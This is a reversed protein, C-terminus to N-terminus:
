REDVNVPSKTRVPTLDLKLLLAQLIRAEDSVNPHISKKPAAIRCRHGDATYLFPKNEFWALPIEPMSADCLEQLSDPLRQHLLHFRRLRLAIRTLVMRRHFRCVAEDAFALIGKEPPSVAIRSPSLAFKWQEFLEVSQQSRPPPIDVHLFVEDPCSLTEAANKRRVPLGVPSIVAEAWLRRALFTLHQEMNAARTDFILNRRLHDNTAPSGDMIKAAILRENKLAPAFKFEREAEAFRGDLERYEDLSFVAAAPLVLISGAVEDLTQLRFIQPSFFPEESLQRALDLGLQARRFVRPWDGEEVALKLDMAAVWTVGRFEVVRRFVLASFLDKLDDVQTFHGPPHKVAQELQDLVGSRLAVGSKWRIREPGQLVRSPQAFATSFLEGPRGLRNHEEIAQRLQENVTSNRASREVTEEFTTPEGRQRLAEIARNM